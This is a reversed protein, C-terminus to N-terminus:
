GELVEHRHMWREACANALCRDLLALLRAACEKWGTVPEDGYLQAGMPTEEAPLGELVRGLM